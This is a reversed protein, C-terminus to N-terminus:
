ELPEIRYGKQAILQLLGHEGPLHAAGIAIFAGGKELYPALKVAMRQSRADLLLDLFAPPTQSEPQKAIIEPSRMWAVLGGPDNAVYRQISTELMDEAHQSQVITSRLLQSEEASSLNDLGRVQETVTELAIIPTGHERAKEILLADLVEHKSTLACQPTDLWLALFAPKLRKVPLSLHRDEVEKQLLLMDPKSLLRDPRQKPRALLVSRAEALAIRASVKSPDEEKIEVLLTSADKLAESVQAPLATIRPDALHLTGFVYSSPLGERSVKFFRGHGYPMARSAGEIAALAEPREAKLELFLDKGHCALSAFAPDSLFVGIAV